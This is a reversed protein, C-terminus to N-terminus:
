PKRLCLYEIFPGFAVVPVGLPTLGKALVDQLVLTALKRQFSVRIGEPPGAPLLRNHTRTINLVEVEMGARKLPRVIGWFTMGRRGRSDLDSWQNHRKFAVAYRHAVRSPLWSLFPLGTTHRDTPWLLNPTESIYLLGGRRLVRWVDLLVARRTRFPVVHELVGNLLVFDFCESPLELDGPDQIPSIHRTEIQESLGHHCFRMDALELSAPDIDVGTVRNHPDSEALMVTTSGTGCGFDLIDLNKLNCFAQIQWLLRKRFTEVRGGMHDVIWGEYDSLAEAGAHLARVKELFEPGYDIPWAPSDKVRDGGM